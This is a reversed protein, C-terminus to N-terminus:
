IIIQKYKKTIHLGQIFQKVISYAMGLVGSCEEYEVGMAWGWLMASEWIWILIIFIDKIEEFSM